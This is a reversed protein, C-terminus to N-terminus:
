IMKKPFVFPRTPQRTGRLDSRSEGYDFAAM